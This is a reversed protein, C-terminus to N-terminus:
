WIKYDNPTIVLLFLAFSFLFPFSNFRFFFPDYFLFTSLLSSLGSLLSSHNDYIILLIFILILFKSIKSTLLFPHTYIAPIRSRDATLVPVLLKAVVLLGPILFLKRHFMCSMYHAMQEPTYRMHDLYHLHRFTAYHFNHQKTGLLLMHYDSLTHLYGFYHSTHGSYQSSHSEAVFQRM